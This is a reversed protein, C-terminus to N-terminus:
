LLVMTLHGCSVFAGVKSPASYLRQASSIVRAHGLTRGRSHQVCYHGSGVGVSKHTHKHKFAVMTQKDGQLLQLQSGAQSRSFSEPSRREAHSAYAPTPMFRHLEWQHVHFHQVCRQRAEFMSSPQKNHQSLLM